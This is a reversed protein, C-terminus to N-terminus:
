AKRGDTPAQGFQTPRELPSRMKPDIKTVLATHYGINNNEDKTWEIPLLTIYGKVQTLNAAAPKHQPTSWFEKDFPMPKVKAGRTGDPNRIETDWTPWISAPLLDDTGEVTNKHTNKNRPVWDFAAEYLKTNNAAVKQIAKWSKPDGPKDVAAALETAPRIGSTLGFLKRWTQQRLKRAFGRTPRAKGDGCLDVKETESDMILVALESDRSGLLSRDNINASGLLAFRDDVIMLKSHVYIQETVYREGLKEWNRLNLLTVYKFCEKMKVDEHDRNDPLFVRGWDPDKKDFLERAKIFRRIRNLLSMSGFVLSQMTWHIQSVIVGSNLQGESYVPLTIYVHFHPNDPDLIARGIRGALLYCIDNGPLQDSTGPMARTVAAGTKASEYIKLSPGSLDAPAIQGGFESVFFQNEIYIFHQAKDILIQMARLIDNQVGGPRKFRKKVDPPLMAYENLRMPAPASRLTQIFCGGTKAEPEAPTPLHHLRPAVSNWRMVFNRTLDAVASGKIQVEIDQWPMRPQAAPDLTELTAAPARPDPKKDEVYPAQHAGARIRKFIDDAVSLRDVMGTLLDPDVVTSQDISGTQVVCGNYRNLASRGQGDAKLSFNPDDYRGYAIDIGGVFAIERDVVVLKQHHSYFSSAKDAQLSALQVHVRTPRVLKNIALLVSRTQDDYTQVPASDSWPMVYINCGNEAAKLLVDFLRIGPALLADWNVQWGTIYIEKKASNIVEILHQFYEAGSGLPTVENGGNPMSFQQEYGVWINETAFCKYPQGTEDLIQSVTRHQMGLASGIM